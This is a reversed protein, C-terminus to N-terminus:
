QKSTYKGTFSVPLFIGSDYEPIEHFELINDVAVSIEMWYVLEERRPKAQNREEVLKARSM